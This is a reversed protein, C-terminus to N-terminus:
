FLLSLRATGWLVHWCLYYSVRVAYMPVFGFRRFVHLEFLNFAFVQAFTFLDIAAISGVALAGRVQFLPEILAVAVVCAAVLAPAAARLVTLLLALPMAHLAVEVVFAIAPYFLLASPLAVNIDHPFRLAVDAVIASLAFAAVALGGCIVGRKGLRSARFFASVRLAAIAVLGVLALAGIAPVVGIDGLYSRFIEPRETAVGGAAALAFASCALYPWAWPTSFQQSL